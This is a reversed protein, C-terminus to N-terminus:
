IKLVYTKWVLRPRNQVSIIDRRIFGYEELHKLMNSLKDLNLPEKIRRKIVANIDRTEMAKKEEALDLITQLVLKEEASAFKKFIKLNDTKKRLENLHQATKTFAVFAISLALLLQQAPVGLSVLSQSKLPEWYSAIQQGFTLLEDEFQPYSTSNRTLIILNIRVYKQEVTIGTSFTAKEYWYLTVQTYNQPNEFIFYRAIIPVDELLEIDRSDLVSVLPYHGQATQRTVWCEEWSHLNSISNAVCVDVHVTASSKNAPFYAYMLSADQHAIREYNEDRYLFRLQYDPIRPLINTANEWSSSSTVEIAEQAVAFTPARISLTVISCGLLLLLLKVWFKQSIEVHFPNLFKGCNSCFNEFNKLNTKCKPCLPLEQPTLFAQMKLIKEGVFLTLSMGVFILLLGAVTHFMFMAAEESFWYGISVIATIRIINLIQFIFFGLVFVLVKKFVSASTVLALFAGVMAFAILSYVGSCPLDIAFSLPQGASSALAITPPGYSSTLRIPLGLTKLLTYSAQTNFNAMAGGITYLFETPPPILFLLFLIPFILVILVKPNFLILTVGMIFVPISLIHYELPYFTHSGYWYVLFAILCLASGIVEDLYQTKTKKRLRDLALSAKVMDKKLYLLFGAFFPILLVHSLAESQVAENVLITLDNGYVISVLLTILAASLVHQYYIKVNAAAESLANNVKEMLVM